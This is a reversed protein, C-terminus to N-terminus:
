RERPKEVRMYSRDHWEFESLIYSIYWMAADFNERTIPIDRDESPETRFAAIDRSRMLDQRWSLWGIVGKPAKLM